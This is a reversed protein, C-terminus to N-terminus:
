AKKRKRAYFGLGALGCGLLLLTSPEPVPANLDINDIFRAGSTGGMIFGLAIVDYDGLNAITQALSFSTLTNTTISLSQDILLDGDNTDGPLFWPAFPDLSNVGYNLGAIVVRGRGEKLIYDFTLHILSAGSLPNTFAYFLLNTNDSTQELHQAIDGTEYPNTTNIGWRYSDPFDIWKDLNYNAPNSSTLNVTLGNYITAGSFDESLLQLAYGPLSFLFVGVTLLIISLIGKKM